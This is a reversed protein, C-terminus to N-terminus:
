FIINNDFYKKTDTSIIEIIIMSFPGRFKSMQEDENIALFAEESSGINISKKM